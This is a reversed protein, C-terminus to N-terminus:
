LKKYYIFWRSPFLGFKQYGRQAPIHSPNCGTDVHVYKMGATRMIELVHGYM